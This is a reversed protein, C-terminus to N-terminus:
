PAKLHQWFFRLNWSKLFSSPGFLSDLICCLSVAHGWKREQQRIFAVTTKEFWFLTSRHFTVNGRIITKLITQAWHWTNCSATWTCKKNGLSATRTNMCLVWETYKHIILLNFTVRGRTGFAKMCASWFKFEYRTTHRLKTLRSGTLLLCSYASFFFILFFYVRCVIVNFISTM